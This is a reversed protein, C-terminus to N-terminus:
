KPTQLLCVFGEEVSQLDLPTTLMNTHAREASRASYKDSQTLTQNLVAKGRQTRENLGMVQETM